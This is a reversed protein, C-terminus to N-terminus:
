KGRFAIRVVRSLPKTIKACDENIEADSKGKIKGNITTITTAATGAVAIGAILALHIM